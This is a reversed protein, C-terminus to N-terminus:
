SRQLPSLPRSSSSLGRGAGGLIGSIAGPPFKVGGGAGFSAGGGRGLGRAAALCMCSSESGRRRGGGGSFSGKESPGGAGYTGSGGRTGDGGSLGPRSPRLFMKAINSAYRLFFLVLAVSSKRCISLSRSLFSSVSSSLLNTLLSIGSTVSLSSRWKTSRTSRSPSPFIDEVSNSFAIFRERREWRATRAASGPARRAPASVMAAESTRVLSSSYMTAFRVLAPSSKLDNSTSWLPFSSALSIFFSTFSTSGPM